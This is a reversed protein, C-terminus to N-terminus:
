VAEVFGVHRFVQTKKVSGDSQLMDAAERRSFAYLPTVGWARLARELPGMFFPAGGIMAASVRAAVAIEAATEAAVRIQQATPFEDFTILAQVAVKDAPEVVGAAIQEPTAVHQTLNLIKAM